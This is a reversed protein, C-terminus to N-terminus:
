TEEEKDVGEVVEAVDEEGLESTDEIVEEEEDDDATEAAEEDPAPVEEVVDKAKAPAAKSAKSKAAAAAALAAARKRGRVFVEPEFQAGCKPCVIPVRGLDYFRASCNLCQRKAGWSAKVV